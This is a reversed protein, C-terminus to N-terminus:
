YRTRQQSPPPLTSPTKLKKSRELWALEKRFAEVTADLDDLEGMKEVIWTIAVDPNIYVGANITDRLDKPLQDFVWMRMNAREKRVLMVKEFEDMPVFECDPLGPCAYRPPDSGPEQDHEAHMFACTGCRDM